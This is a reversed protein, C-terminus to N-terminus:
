KGYIQNYYQEGNDYEELIHGNRGLLNGDNWSEKIQGKEMQKAREIEEMLYNKMRIPLQDVLWDVATQKNEM